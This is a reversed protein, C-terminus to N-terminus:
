IFGHRHLEAIAVKRAKEKAKVRGHNGTMDNLFNMMEGVPLTITRQLPLELMETMPRIDATTISLLTHRRARARTRQLVTATRIGSPAACAAARATRGTRPNATTSAATTRAVTTPTRTTADMMKADKVKADEVKAKASAEVEVRAKSADKVKAKAGDM